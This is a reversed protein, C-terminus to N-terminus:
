PHEDDQGAPAADCCCSVAADAALCMELDTLFDQEVVQHDRCAEAVTHFPAIPCGVCLMGHELMVAISM